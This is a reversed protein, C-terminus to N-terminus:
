LRPKHHCLLERTQKKLACASILTLSIHRGDNVTYLFMYIQHCSDISSHTGRHSKFSACKKFKDRVQFTDREEFPQQLAPVPVFLYCM